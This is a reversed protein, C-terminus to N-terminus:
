ILRHTLGYATAAARSSVDLKAFINAVHRAVTRESIVLDAAIERNSRGAAVRTLVERERATLARRDTTSPRGGLRALDLLAGLRSFTARAADLELAAGDVDGLLHLARGVLVRVRAIEYPADLESWVRQARRLHTLAEQPAGVSVAVAGLAQASMAWLVPKDADAAAVALANAAETAGAVDGGALRIEVAALLHRTSWGGNAEDVARRISALADDTRGQALRLLAYGPQPDHGYASAERYADEAAVLDGQVRLLEAYQYFALGASPRAPDSLWDCARRAEAFAEPWAGHLAKIESRHVLCQGRFPVLDPQSGSWRDLAMTWESVRRLDFAQQAALISACYVIGATIPSVEGSAVAVMAEDLFPIGAALQGSECLAEGQGLMGMATLEADGFRVGISTAEASISCAAVADGALLTDYGRIVLVFGREPCELAGADLLRQMRALWGRSQSAEGALMLTVSLWYGCRAAHRVDGRDVHEHYARTWAGRADVDRGTLYAATALRELDEPELPAEADAAALRTIADRWAM